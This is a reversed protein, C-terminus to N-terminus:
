TKQFHIGDKVIYNKEMKNIYFREEMQQVAEKMGITQICIKSSVGNFLLHLPLNVSNSNEFKKYFPCAPSVRDFIQLDNEGEIDIAYFLTKGNAALINM